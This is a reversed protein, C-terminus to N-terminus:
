FNKQVSKARFVDEMTDDVVRSEAQEMEDLIHSYTQLTTVIDKHGLRRSIYKINVGKYLLMSAHTHRLGHCTIEKIGIKKCLTRLTKNVANNTVPHMKTNVFVLNKENRLGTLLAKKNQETKLNQLMDATGKDITITRKSAYNKTNSFGHLDKFDWTKNITITRNKFDVCDWTLGMIESFRAGTAIAFLIIYRSIYRPQLNKKTEVVLKQVDNFNLYKLEESKADKEGKIIVKYTPDKFIIGDQIAEQLCAKIYTHRKKVTERTHGKAIENLFKQYMVRTIEKLKVGAFYKEVLRVSREINREHEIDYKGKKYVEFWTRMYESFLQDGASIDMGVHLKKEVEAAALECEKKTRFGGKTKTKYKGADKYSVRYRWGNGLKQISAM